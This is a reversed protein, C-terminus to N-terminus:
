SKEKQFETLVGWLGAVVVLVAPNVNFQISAVLTILAVLMGGWHTINKRGLTGITLVLLGVVAATLGALASSIGTTLALTRYCVGLSLMVLVAPLLFATTAAIAGSFGGLKWGLYAVVQVVTSGPLLKTYTLAEAIDTETLWQRRETLNRTLLTLVAGLGGFSQLGIRLFCNTIAIESLQFPAAVFLV